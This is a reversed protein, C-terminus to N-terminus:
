MSVDDLSATTSIKEMLQIVLDTDVDLERPLLDDDEESERYEVTLEVLGLVCSAWPPLPVGYNLEPDRGERTGPFLVGTFGKLQSTLRLRRAITTHIHTRYEWQRSLEHALSPNRFLNSAIAHYFDVHDDIMFTLLRRIEVNLRVIEERARLIGFHLNMAERHAPHTWPLSRIDTRTDRLIDFDALTVANIVKEWSLRERPPDLQVAAENYDNLARRIAEARM